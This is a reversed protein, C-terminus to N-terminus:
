VRRVLGDGKLRWLLVDLRDQGFFPEGRYACTPVGWHGASEHDTQNKEIESELRDADSIVLKDLGELDLGAKESALALHEGEHWNVTGGWILRSIEDAFEIGHGLEAAVIGLRTLRYIYPQEEGIQRLGSDDVYYVLPDPSPWVLPLELFKAVRFLDKMFYSVWLPHLTQFFDPMRIAIPYVPRLNVKLQYEYQWQRLRPVALYSWPSRFSWFVDIKLPESM